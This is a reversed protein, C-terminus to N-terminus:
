HAICYGDLLCKCQRLQTADNVLISECVVSVDNVEHSVQLGLVHVVKRPRPQKVFDCPTFPHLVEFFLIKIDILFLQVAILLYLRHYSIRQSHHINMGKSILLSAEILEDNSGSLWQIVHIHWLLLLPRDACEDLVINKSMHALMEGPKGDVCLSESIESMWFCFEKGRSV